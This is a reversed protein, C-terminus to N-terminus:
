ETKDVILRDLGHIADNNHRVLTRVGQNQNDIASNLRLACKLTGDTYKIFKAIVEMIKLQM